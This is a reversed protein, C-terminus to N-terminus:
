WGGLEAQRRRHERPAGLFARDFMARKFWIQADCEWTFGIGGHVEIATRAVEMFRDTNHAKAIAALRPADEEGRDHLYGAYWYLGRNPEVKLVMDALEHKLAQFSGIKVGFQERTLAYDVCMELLRQAGGFADAALLILGTDYVRRTVDPNEPLLDCASGSLEVTATRRTWDAGDITTHALGNAGKEVIGFRGGALGVLILDARDAEPVFVKVGTLSGNAQIQWDDPRWNGGRDAFAVTGIVHGTALAPLWREKQEESGGM